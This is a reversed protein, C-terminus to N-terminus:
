RSRRSPTSGAGTFGSVVHSRIAAAMPARRSGCASERPELAVDRGDVRITPSSVFRLAEAQEVSGVLVKDVEVEVGAGELVERVVELASELSRGVGLCRACRTLDLFLFEIRLKGAAQAARAGGTTGVAAM